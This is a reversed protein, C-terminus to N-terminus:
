LGLDDGGLWTIHHTRRHAQLTTRAMQLAMVLAQLSDVGAAEYVEDEGLGTIQVSCVWDGEPHEQPRGIRLVAPTSRGDITFVRQVIVDRM